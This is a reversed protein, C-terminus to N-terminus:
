PCTTTMEVQQEVTSKALLWEFVRDETIGREIERLRGARQLAAYM